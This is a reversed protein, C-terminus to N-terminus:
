GLRKFSFLATIQAYPNPSRPSYYEPLITQYSEGSSLTVKFYLNDNPKFKITQAMGGGTIRVFPTTTPNQIDYIPARFIVSTANPNNSYIINKLGAGTSSVNSIQVYVFPYFAIRGGQSVSLTYNPLTLSIMQMEYCVMDQQSVLSGTYVFPNFNDSTFPLIEISAGIGNNYLSFIPYVKFVGYSVGSIEYYSYSIINRSQNNSPSAGYEYYPDTPNTNSDGYPLVRLFNNKYYNMGSSLNNGSDVVVITSNDTSIIGIGVVTINNIIVPNIGGLIPILPPNTRLSFNNTTQWNGIGTVIPGSSNTSSSSGTTDLKIMNTINDYHYIPRYQNINENYLIYNNYANEQISGNPVFLLPSLTDTFDSPDYINVIDGLNFSDPMSNIVTIEMKYIQKGAIITNGLYYSYIIRRNVFNPKTSTDIIVLGAYYNRLQQFPLQTNGSNVVFTILDSSYKIPTTNDIQGSLIAATNGGLTMNNSSWSFIPTSLSIPDLADNITKTGTQSVPIEFESANPWITRNRYSSNVELFRTSM